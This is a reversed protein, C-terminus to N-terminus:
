PDPLEVGEGTTQPKFGYPSNPYCWFRFNVIRRIGPNTPPELIYPAGLNWSADEQPGTGPGTWDRAVDQAHWTRLPRDPNSLNDWGEPEEIVDFLIHFATGEHDVPVKWQIKAKSVEVTAVYRRPSESLDTPPSDSACPGWPTQSEITPWNTAYHSECMGLDDIGEGWAPDIEDEAKDRLQTKTIGDSLTYTLRFAARTLDAWDSAIAVSPYSGSGWPGPCTLTTIPTGHVLEDQPGTHISTTPTCEWGAPAVEVWGPGSGETWSPDSSDFTDTTCGTGDGGPEPHNFYDAVKITGGVLNDTITGLRLSATSGRVYYDDREPDVIPIANYQAMTDLASYNGFTGNILEGETEPYWRRYLSPVDDEPAGAPSTFPLWSGHRDFETIAWIDEPPDVPYDDAEREPDEALWEDRAEEWAEVADSYATEASSASGSQSQCIKLPVPCAPMQCCCGRGLTDNWDELTEIPPGFPNM